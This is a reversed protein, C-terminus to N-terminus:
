FRIEVIEDPDIFSDDLWPTEVCRFAGLLGTGGKVNTYTYSPSAMGLEFFDNATRSHYQFYEESFAYLRLKFHSDYTWTETAGEENEWESVSDWRHYFIFEYDDTGDWVYIYTGGMRRLHWFDPNSVFNGDSTFETVDYVSQVIYEEDWVTVGCSDTRSKLLYQIGIHCGKMEDPLELRARVVNREEVGEYSNGPLDTLELKILSGSLSKPMNTRAVIPDTGESSATLCIESGEPFEEVVFLTGPDLGPDDSAAERIEVVEGDVTMMVDEPKVKVPTREHDGVPVLVDIDVVTTDGSSVECYLKLVSRDGLDKLDFPLECSTFLFLLFIYTIRKM